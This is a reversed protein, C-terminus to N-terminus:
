CSDVWPENISNLQLRKADCNRAGMHRIIDADRTNLLLNLVLERSNRPDGRYAKCTSHGHVSVVPEVVDEYCIVDVGLSGQRRKAMKQKDGRSIQASQTTWKDSAAIEIPVIRVVHNRDGEDRLIERAFIPACGLLRESTAYSDRATVIPAFNDTNNAIQM